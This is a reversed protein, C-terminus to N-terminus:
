SLKMKGLLIFNCLYPTASSCDPRRGHSVVVNERLLGFLTM